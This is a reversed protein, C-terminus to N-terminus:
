QVSTSSTKETVDIYTQMATAFEKNCSSITELYSNGNELNKTFKAADAQSQEWAGKVENLMAEISSHVSDIQVANNAIQEASSKVAATNTIIIQEM